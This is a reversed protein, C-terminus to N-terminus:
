IKDNNQRWETLTGILAGVRLIGIFRDQFWFIGALFEAEDKTYVDPLPFFRGKSFDIIEIETDALLGIKTDDIVTILCPRTPTEIEDEKLLNRLDVIPISEGRLNVVGVFSVPLHPVSILQYTHLIELITDLEIAFWEKGVGFIALSKEERATKEERKQQAKNKVKKLPGDPKYFQRSKLAM